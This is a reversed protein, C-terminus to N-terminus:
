KQNGWGSWGPGRVVVGPMAGTHDGGKIVPTGNVLVDSVGVGYQMPEAYTAKDAITAPDFVVVDAFYGPKLAGRGKIKLNKAPLSTLRRIAESLTILKEDRVYHGLVRAFSGYARPHTSQSLFVGEPAAAEADSGFSVYPLKLTKRVNDESMLFYAVEVRSGDEIVLDIATDAPSTGRMASVDALTKGILTRLKPNKFGLFLLNKPNGAAFYLNEWGEGKKNIESIVRARIKPDKLRAIWADIGDAQVWPPMAADLGTAGAIYPYMNATIDLGARQAKAIKAAILDFKNWNSQGGLKMHYIEAGIKAERAIQLLEDVASEVTDAESRMHSIYRGGFPAAAKSLAILENTDAYNGPAYILSSGVGMAGERMAARVLDQMKILETPTAKRDAAGIEHMRVTAAGVFSAINPSVGKAVMHDLYGGLSSWVIDYKFDGQQKTLEAKMAPAYPGMSWGEGFVELTVGQKMDSMGRGDVILSENAWSLMNIFGPAVAKGRADITTKAKKAKVKGIAIIRDGIIGVDAKRGPKGSGDYVTGGTIVVDYVPPAAKAIGPNPALGITCALTFFVATKLLKMM